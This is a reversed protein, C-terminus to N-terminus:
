LANNNRKHQYPCVNVIQDASWILCKYLPADKTQRNQKAHYILNVLM